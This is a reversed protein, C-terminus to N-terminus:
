IESYKKKKFLKYNVESWAQWRALPIRYHPNKKKSINSEKQRLLSAHLRLQWLGSWSHSHNIIAVYSTLGASSFQRTSLRPVLSTGVPYLKPGALSMQRKKKLSTESVENYNSRWSWIGQKPCEYMLLGSGTSDEALIHSYVKTPTTRVIWRASDKPSTNFSTSWLCAM